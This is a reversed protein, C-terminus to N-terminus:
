IRFNFMGKLKKKKNKKGTYIPRVELGSFKTSPAPAKGKSKIGFVLAGYSPTYSYKRTAKMGKLGGGFDFGFPIPPTPLPLPTFIQPTRTFPTRPTIRTPVQVVPTKIDTITNIILDPNKIKTRSRSRSPLIDVFTQTPTTTFIQQDTKVDMFSKIQTATQQQEKMKTQSISVQEQTTTPFVVPFTTTTGFTQVPSTLKPLSVTPTTQTTITKVVGGDGFSTGSSGTGGKFSTVGTTGKGFGSLFNKLNIETGTFRGQQSLISAGSKSAILEFPSGKVFGKGSTIPASTFKSIGSVGTSTSYGGSKTIDIPIINSSTAPIIKGGFEFQATGTSGIVNVGGKATPSAIAIGTKPDVIFPKGTFGKGIQYTNFTTRTGFDTYAGGGYVRVASSETVVWGGAKTEAGFMSIDGSKTEGTFLKLKSGKLVTGEFNATELNPSYIHTKFRVPSFGSLTEATGAKFGYERVNSIGGKVGAGITVATLGVTTVTRPSSFTEKFWSTPSTLFPTKVPTPARSYYYSEKDVFEETFLKGTKPNIQGGGLLGLTQKTMFSRAGESFDMVGFGVSKAGMKFKDSTSFDKYETRADKTAKLMDKKYQEESDYYTATEGGLYKPLQSKVREEGYKINATDYIFSEKTGRFQSVTQPTAGMFAVELPITEPTTSQLTWYATSSPGAVEAEDKKLIPVGYSVGSIGRGVQSKPKDVLPSTQTVSTSAVIPSQSQRDLEQQLTTNPQLNTGSSSGGSSGGSSVTGTGTKKGGSYSTTTGSSSVVTVNAGSSIAKDASSKESERFVMSGAGSTPPTTSTEKKKGWTWTRPDYWAM